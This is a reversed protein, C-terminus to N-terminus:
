VEMEPGGSLECGTAPSWRVLIDHWLRQVTTPVPGMGTFVAWTGAPIIKEAFGDPVPRGTSTGAILYTFQGLDHSFEMGVGLLTDSNCGQELRAITGDQFSDGWFRDVTQTRIRSQNDVRISKGIIPFAEKQVFRYTLERFPRGSARVSLRPYAKLTVGFKRAASPTIGHLRHFAKSFSEPSDYGYKLAIDLVRGGTLALEQAARTLKRCRVYETVTFGTLFQFTRQFHFLSSCAERAAQEIQYDDLHDELYDLAKKLRDNWDM